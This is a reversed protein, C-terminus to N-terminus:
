PAAYNVISELFFGTSKINEKIVAAADNDTIRNIIPMKYTSIESDEGAISLNPIIFNRVDVSQSGTLSDKPAAM